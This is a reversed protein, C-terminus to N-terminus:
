ASRLTPVDPKAGHDLLVRAVENRSYEAAVELATRGPGDILNVNAGRSILLEVMAKRGEGAARHLPPVNVRSDNIDAGQDLLFTAAKLWGEHAIQALPTVGDKPSNLLDPSNKVLDRLRAIEASEKEGISADVAPLPAASGGLAVIRERSIRAVPDINAFEALVRQFLALAEEKRNQKTRIEALRFLATAAYQRDKDFSQILAEYATSAKDLNRNAEEEFLGEQLLQRPEAIVMLPVLMAAFYLAAKM